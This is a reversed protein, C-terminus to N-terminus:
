LQSVDIELAMPHSLLSSFLWRGDSYLTLLLSPFMWCSILHFFFSPPSFFISYSSGGVCYCGCALKNVKNFEFTIKYCISQGVPFRSIVFLIRSPRISRCNPAELLPITPPIIQYLKRNDSSSAILLAQYINKEDTELGLVHYRYYKM